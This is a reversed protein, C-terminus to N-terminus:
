ALSAGTSRSVSIDNINMCDDFGLEVGSYVDGITVVMGM